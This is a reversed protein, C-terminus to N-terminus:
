YYIVIYSSFAVEPCYGCTGCSPPTVCSTGSVRCAEYDIINEDGIVIFDTIDTVYPEVDLGPCWGARGYGWTGYQNPVTGEGIMELSMCHNSSSADPFDRSFEYTGGNVTFIHRSNCFECCNYCTNNGWGHGTIYAVFEVKTANSPIMFPTPPRNDAYDENFHVTGNWIPIFEEAVPNNETNHYFRIKLTLLSNPWGSEQFKLMKLGGPQIHSMLPSIDTLHHPQRRFPTIWRATEYCNSGDIDCIYMHAIRDYEDCGADSYNMDADPCGRLLEVAMGSYSSLEQSTPFEVTDVISSAWGGTYHEREFVVIEDYTSEDEHLSNWESNFYVPEHAVYSLYTGTFSTPSGLYGIERLRQFRDISLARRGQLADTLWNNFGSVKNPVFHLHKRWHYAEEDDMTSLIDDYISKITNIDSTFSTRDSVFFYHVNDPSKELFDERDSANWLTPSGSAGSYSIFIYTDEGNWENEFSWYPDSPTLINNIIQIVDLIDITLDNNLDGEDFWDIDTLTGIIYSIALIVDQINVTEDLNLDGNLTSNLDSVTFPGAIDFYEVGYPGEHFDQGNLIFFAVLMCMYLQLNFKM